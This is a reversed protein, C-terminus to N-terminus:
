KVVVPRNPQQRGPVYMDKGLASGKKVVVEQEPHGLPVYEVSSFSSRTQVSQGVPVDFAPVPLVFQLM